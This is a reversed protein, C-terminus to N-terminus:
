RFLFAKIAEVNDRNCNAAVKEVEGGAEAVPADAGSESLAQALDQPDVGAAELEQLDSIAQEIDEPAVDAEALVTAIEELEAESPAEAGMEDVPAEEMPAEEMPVEEMPAEEMGELAEPPLVAMPDEMAIKDLLAHVGGAANIQLRHSASKQLDAEDRQRAQMGALFSQRYGEAADAAVKELSNMVPAEVVASATKQVPATDLRGLIANALKSVRVQESATKQTQSIEQEQITGINGSGVVSQDVDMTKTGQDDTPNSGMSDNNDTENEVTSGGDQADKSQEKGLNTQTDTASKKDNGSVNNATSDQYSEEAAIKEMEASDRFPKLYSTIMDLTNQGSTSM